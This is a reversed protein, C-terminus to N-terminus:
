KSAEGVQSTVAELLEAQKKLQEQMTTVTESMTKIKSTLRGIASSSSKTFENIGTSITKLAEAVYPDM